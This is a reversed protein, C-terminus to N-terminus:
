RGGGGDDGYDGPRPNYVPYGEPNDTVFYASRGEAKSSIVEVWYNEKKLGVENVTGMRQGNFTIWITKGSRYADNITQWSAQITPPGDNESIAPIQIEIEAGHGWLLWEGTSSKYYLKGSAPNVALTEAEAQEADSSSFFEEENEIFYINSDEVTGEGGGGSPTSSSSIGVSGYFSTM